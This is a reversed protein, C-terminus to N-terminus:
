VVMMTLTLAESTQGASVVLSEGSYAAVRDPSVAEVGVGHGERVFVINFTRQQLMGAFSGVRKGITLESKADDWSFGITSHKGDQYDRSIGDDEFLEFSADAGRYVRVETPDTKGLTNQMLPGLLVISGAKVFAPAEAIGFSVSHMANGQVPRGTHFHVWSGEPFYAQRTTSRDLNGAASTTSPTHVATILFADGFMFEDSISRAAVDRPFDFALGRQMTYGATEVRAFGSYIYPLLRYRLSVASTNIHHMTDNGFHWLETHTGAGHVRFIPTFVGFQFWRTLLDHYDPSTYQDGPRFFGGIDQSWYPIGSLQYNISAAIQRRLSEWSGTIDGSWLAAGTRQQGAFSSRTLSFVRAGQAKPYDRRLGDAIAETTWLSYSNMLQNGTGGFSRQNINPFGEPETADLWLSDVGIAFHADRSFNYFLERAKPNWADYYSGGLMFGGDEMQKYFSTKKDFKSWVSVMLHIDMSKLESVMTTPDPYVDHDWHPGWGLKGWYQWDQVIADVPIKYERLLRAAELLESQTAYHERCQWFGYTWKGYLPAAGTIERYGKIARDATGSLVFYYDVLEGVASKLATRKYEPGQVYLGRGEVTKGFTYSITYERGGKLGQVRGTLSSPVNSLKPWSLATQAHGIADTITVTVNDDKGGFTPNESEKPFSPGLYFFHDGDVQPTFKLSGSISGSTSPLVADEPPNLFTWAYNDWLLGYGESSVFFPVIAETNFQIMQVPANKFNILGNQYSGGGYLAEDASTEAWVQEVQYTDMGMDKVATFRHSKEQLVVKRTLKDMFTVRGTSVSGQVLLKATELTVTDGRRSQTFPVKPWDSKAIYSTKKVAATTPRHTVRVIEDSCIHLESNEGLQVVAAPGANSRVLVLAILQLVSRM